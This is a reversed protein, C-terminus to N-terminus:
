MEDTKWGAKRRCTIKNL